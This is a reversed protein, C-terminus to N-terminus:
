CSWLEQAWDNIEDSIWNDFSYRARDTWWYLMVANEATDIYINPGGCTVMLSVSRVTKRDSEIRYEIDLVDDFYDYLSLQEPEEDVTCGCPLRYLTEGDDTETTLDDLDDIEIEEGCEPCRYMTGRAYAELTEAIYRCHDRNERDTREQRTEPVFPIKEGTATNVRYARTITEGTHRISYVFSQLDDVTYLHRTYNSTKSEVTLLYYVNPISNSEPASEDIYIPEPEQEPEITEPQQETEEIKVAYVTEYFNWGSKHTMDFGDMKAITHATDYRCSGLRNNEADYVTAARYITDIGIHGGNKLVEIVENKKLM